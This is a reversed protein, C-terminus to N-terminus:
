WGIYERMYEISTKAWSEEKEITAEIDGGFPTWQELIVNVDREFQKMKGLMWSMDLMSKEISTGEIIFGMNHDARYIKFGKVHFNVALPALESFVV